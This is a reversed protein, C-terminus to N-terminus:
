FNICHFCFKTSASNTLVLSDVIRDVIWSSATKFCYVTALYTCIVNTTGQSRVMKLWRHVGTGSGNEAKGYVYNNMKFRAYYVLSTVYYYRPGISSVM